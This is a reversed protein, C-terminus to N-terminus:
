KWAAVVGNKVWTGNICQFSFSCVYYAGHCPGITEYYLQGHQAAPLTAEQNKGLSQTTGACPKESGGLAAKWTTGDCLELDGSNYRIVGAYDDNCVANVTGIKVGRAVDLNFTSANLMAVQTKGVSFPLDGADSVIGKVSEEARVNASCFLTLLACIASKIILKNSM